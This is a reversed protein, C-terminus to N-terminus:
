NRVETTADLSIDSRNTTFLLKTRYFNEETEFAGFLKLKPFAKFPTNVELTVNYIRDDADQRDVNYEALVSTQFLLFLYIRSGYSLHLKM